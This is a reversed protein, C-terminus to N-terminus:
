HNSSPNFDSTDSTLLREIESGDTNMMYLQYTYEDSDRDSSFVIQQGDQTWIPNINNSDLETLCKVESGDPLMTYIGYKGDRNSSFVLLTGDPSWDAFGDVATNHTLQTLESGDANIMYIEVSNPDEYSATGHPNGLQSSYVIKQGDPSWRPSTVVEKPDSTLQVLNSYSGDETSVDMRWLNGDRSFVIQKGDPSWAPFHDLHGTSLQQPNNGDLNVVFIPWDYESSHKIFVVRQDIPSIDPAWGNITNAITGSFKTNLNIYMIPSSFPNDADFANFVVVYDSSLDPHTTLQSNEPLVENHDAENQASAPLDTSTTVTNACGTLLAVFFLMSLICRTKM